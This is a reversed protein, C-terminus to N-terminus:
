NIVEKVNDEAISTNLSTNELKPPGSHRRPRAPSPPYSLRKKVSGAPGKEPTSNEVGLPNQLRTKAKASKTPVMYSPVSSSFSALSEDDRISSVGISHRRNRESQVSIMSRVDDDQSIAAVRASKLKRSAVSNAPKSPTTPSPLESNLQHRAFAKTIEGGAISASRVSMQDNKLEKESKGQTEWPKAGMWRDLWSWGWQPNTPDMFLLNASRPSKKWTKQHSYSYALARERRVAAEYRSLLNAEIQEKSQASDDWEEGRRLSELEKAHKQMLQRQLARNEELLRIRRSSIQSQVHSLTQMCKLTHGTQRKGTPGDALSKLRVLGRLARLARRALYGRFATQIRITAVEEKSKGAFHTVKALPVIEAADETATASTEAAASTSVAISYAHKTQEEEVEALAVEEVHPVPQPPSVSSTVPPSSDPVPDKEKGSWKKKSKSTKKTDPSLAKKISSFWSGKKGMKLLENRLKGQLFISSRRQTSSPLHVGCKM